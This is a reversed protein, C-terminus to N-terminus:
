TTCRFSHATSHVALCSLLIVKVVVQSRVLSDACRLVPLASHRATGAVEKAAAPRFALAVLRRGVCHALPPLLPRQRRLLRQLLPRLRPGLRADRPEHVRSRPQLLAGGDRELAAQAAAVDRAARPHVKLRLQLRRPRRRRARAAAAARPPAAGADALQPRPLLRAGQHRHRRVRVGGVGPPGRATNSAGKHALGQAAVADRKRAVVAAETEHARDQAAAGEGGQPVM